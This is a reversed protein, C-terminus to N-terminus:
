TYRNLYCIMSGDPGDIWEEDESDHGEHYPDFDPSCNMPNYRKRTLAKNLTVPALEITELDESITAPVWRDSTLAGYEPEFNAFIVVHMDPLWLEGGKYKTCTVIGDIIMEIAEYIQKGKESYTRSLNMFVTNGRWGKDQWNKVNNAFDSIKGVNNIIKCKEPHKLCCWKAFQTKGTRGKKDTIWLVTRDDPEESLFEWMMKQWGYFNEEKLKPEPLEIPRHEYVAITALADRLSGMHNLADSITGHRWIKECDSLHIGAAEVEARCELDEKCVYKAAYTFRKQNKIPKINPHIGEFDLFRCNKSNVAHGWDVVAHTHEYPTCEEGMGDEENSHDPAEHAIFILSRNVSKSELFNKLKEKDIHTKYTLFVLQNSLRFKSNETQRDTQRDM